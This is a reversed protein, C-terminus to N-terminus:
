NEPNTAETRRHVRRRPQCAPCFHTGRQTVVIKVIVAGCRRCPEGQRGYVKLEELHNGPEGDGNVFDRFSTGGSDIGRRLVEPIAEYLALKEWRRLSRVRREPHIRAEFLAEDAYINGVGAVFSQDLLLSKIRVNRNRLAELFSHLNYGPTFPEMGLRSFFSALVETSRELLFVKGFKRTDRFLLEKGGSLAIRLHTHRDPSHQVTRELGTVPHRVFPQDAREPLRLTLQGTMGLHLIWYHRDMEFVLYKGRRRLAQIQQGRLEHRLIEPDVQLIKTDGTVVERVSAGAVHPLLGRRVTEVEPLEPM